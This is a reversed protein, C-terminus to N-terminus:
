LCVDDEFSHLSFFYIVRVGLKRRPTNNPKINKLSARFCKVVIAVKSLELQWNINAVNTYYTTNNNPNTCVDQCPPALQIYRMKRFFGRNPKMLGLSLFLNRPHNSQKCLRVVNQKRYNVAEFEFSSWLTILYSLTASGLEDRVM